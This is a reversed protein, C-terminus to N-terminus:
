SNDSLIKNLLNEICTNDNLFLVNLAEMAEKTQGWKSILKDYDTVSLIFSNLIIKEDKNTNALNKQLMKIKNCFQIKSENSTIMMLGKPDIFSIRQINPEKIWLIFDPYFNDAEFFGIGTKSKNRLLYLEKGELFEIHKSLYDKLLIVFKEEGSNLFPLPSSQISSQVSSQLSILPTYLHKEFDFVKIEASDDSESDSLLVCNKEDLMKNIKTIFENLLEINNADTDTITIKYEDYFNKDNEELDVYSLYQYEWKQRHYMYFRDMYRKLAIIAYDTLNELDKYTNIKLYNKPIILSYWAKYGIKYQLIEQLKSKDIIINYFHKENKYQLLESYIRAYNLCSILNSEICNEEDNSNFHHEKDSLIAQVKSRCDISISHKSLYEGFGNVVNDPKDLILRKSQKQFNKNKPIQIVQLKKDKVMDFRKHIKLRIEEPQKVDEIELFKRFDEMYQAKIGFITLTELLPLFKPVDIEKDIKGSRKLCGEYGRLRVGRGFLQIAQSGESKAFNILGMTSVRWSNWGETFKRSGILINTKSDRNNITRFMSESAFEETGTVLKNECKKILTAADGVSIVGFYDNYEGIKLAIEGDSQKLNIIHLRPEEPVSNVNFVLRLIDIYIDSASINGDFVSKLYVFDNSFLENQGNYLGTDHNLIADIKRITDAKNHVFKDIFSLVEEVDTLLEKVNSNDKNDKNIPESVRNGVFVLLPKEIHFPMFEKKHTDYLKMQQYFSMLCGVLYTQKYEETINEKLNYIRYDKGYGDDYFYKYSYDMIISNGYEVILNDLEKSNKSGLAQKFTASYEFAFGKASLRNRYDKWVDGKLGKHGEDVLVLNNQEFSDVSVTKVKGEEKLKNMDIVIVENKAASFGSLDKSFLQAPISSLKLEELHQSSMGENPSLLIIKNIEIHNNTRRARKLYHLFQLLNIHMILTKGSGTACMFALKNMTEATYHTFSNMGPTEASVEVEDIFSNLDKIFGDRDSFYRDLYMETFLLSIYQYYKLVIGGNRNEGIQKIYRCINEDYIRLKDANLGSESYLRKLYVYFWTNQNEDYGEYESSNLTKSLEKLSDKGFCKLFYRFLILRDNFSVPEQKKKAM